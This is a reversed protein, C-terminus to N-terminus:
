LNEGFLRYGLETYDKDIVLIYEYGQRIAWSRKAEVNNDKVYTYHSKIEVLINGLQFDVRHVKLNGDCDLYFISPGRKVLHFIGNKECWKLFDLEYSGQYPIGKYWKIPCKGGTKPCPNKAKALINSRSIKAKIDPLKSPHDVGLKKKYAKKMLERCKFPNDVGFKEICTMRRRERIESGREKYAKLLSQSLKKAVEPNQVSVPVGYKELCTKKRKENILSKEEVSKKNWSESIKKAREKSVNSCNRCLNSIAMCGKCRILKLPKGCCKCTFQLGLHDLMFDYVTPYKSIIGESIGHDVVLHRRLTLGHRFSKGCLLCKGREIVFQYARRCM